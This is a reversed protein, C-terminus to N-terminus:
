VTEVMLYNSKKRKVVKTSQWKGIIESLRRGTQHYSYTQVYEAAARGMEHMEKQNNYAYRMQKRLDKIDCVVMHGIDQRMFRGNLAPSTKDKIKVELMYNSNFYEGIGHANPVIAPIGTAMAELPTIGFGEGRSPYVMCHSRKLIDVIETPDKPGPIVEIQPYISKVFPIPPAEKVTKLILKVNDDPTFEEQFAKIVERFGKRLNFADYHIFVFPENKEIPVPREIYKYTESDYGLPVITTNIGDKAFVEQCFKSPVLVEDAAALLDPWEEPLKTSEFMTYVIRVDTKMNLLSYPYNYLLGVKQGVYRDGPVIKNDRLERKIFDRSMGFGDPAGPVTSYFIDNETVSTSSLERDALHNAVETDTAKRMRGSSIRKEADEKNDIM